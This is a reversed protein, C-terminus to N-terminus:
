QEVGQPDRRRVVMTKTVCDSCLWRLPDDFAAAFQGAVPVDKFFSQLTDRSFGRPCDSKFLDCVIQGSSSLAFERSSAGVIGGSSYVEVVWVDTGSPLAMQPVPQPTDLGQAFSGCVSTLLLLTLVVPRKM